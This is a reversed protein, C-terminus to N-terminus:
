RTVGQVPQKPREGDTVAHYLFAVSARLVTSGSIVHVGPTAGGLVAEDGRRELVVM